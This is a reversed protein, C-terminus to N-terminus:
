WDRLLHGHHWAGIILRVAIFADGLV